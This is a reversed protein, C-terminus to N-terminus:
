NRTCIVLVERCWQQLRSTLPVSAAACTADIGLERAILTARYLHYDSSVICVQRGALGAADVLRKSLALNEETSQAETETLMAERPVGLERATWTAMAEAETTTGDPTPGGTMVVTRRRSERWLRAALECRRRVTRVPIDDVVYGGLVILVADSAVPAATLYCRRLRTFWHLLFAVLACSLFYTAFSFSKWPSDAPLFLAGPLSAAALSAVSAPMAGVAAGPGILGYSDVLCVAAAPVACCIWLPLPAAPLSARLLYACAVDCALVVLAAIPKLRRETGALTKPANANM